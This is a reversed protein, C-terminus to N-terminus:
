LSFTVSDGIKINHEEAFGANVELVYKAPKVPSYTEPNDPNFENSVNHHIDVVMGQNIWIIDVPFNMNPMWFSYIDAKPFIFLMGSNKGLSTMGSLGRKLEEDTEAVLVSIRVEGIAVIDKTSASFAVFSLISLAILLVFLKHM